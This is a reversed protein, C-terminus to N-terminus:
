RGDDVRQHIVDESGYPTKGDLKGRVSCINVCKSISGHEWSDEVTQFEKSNVIEEISRKTIDLNEGDIFQALEPELRTHGEAIWCCPYVLGTASVYISSEKQAICDIKPIPIPSPTAEGNNKKYEAIVKMAGLMADSPIVVKSNHGRRHPQNHNIPTPRNPDEAAPPELDYAHEGKIYVPYTNNERFRATLKLNFHKFGMKNALHKAETIQHENHKFAIFNWHAIGGAAIFAKANRMIIEWNTNLRYLHNTDGLGDLGFWVGSTAEDSGMVQALETWWEERRASANTNVEVRITNNISRFYRIIPILDRASLPDGYNGCFNIRNLQKIFDIPFITKIDDLSLQTNQIYSAEEGDVFRPCMPCGSNCRDTVELHVARISEYPYIM